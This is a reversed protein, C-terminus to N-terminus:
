KAVAPEIVADLLMGQIAPQPDSLILNDGVDLGTSVVVMNGSISGVSVPRRALRQDTNMVYVYRSGDDAHRLVDRTILIMDTKEPASIKVRVFTGNALPPRMAVPDPRAPNDVLVVLGITGTQSDTAINVRILKASWVYINEGSTVEVEATLNMRDLMKTIANLDTRIFEQALINVAASRFLNSVVNPQFEATIESSAVNDIELMVDGARVFEQLTINAVAIRGDFPARIKTNSLARMAEEQEALRAALTAELAKRKVPALALTNQLGLAVKKQSLLARQAQDLATQSVTGREALAQQRTLETQYFAEIEQELNLTATTNVTSAELEQIGTRASAVATEAKALAIEYDRPDIQVLLDGSRVMEGEAVTAGVLVARGTVQSIGQWTEVAHVRGFGSASAVFTQPAIQQVRVALAAEPVEVVGANDDAGTMWMFVLVAIVIPPIVLLMRWNM